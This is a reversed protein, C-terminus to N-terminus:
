SLSLYRELDALGAPTGIEYFRQEVRLGALANELSLTRFVQALDSKENPAVLRAVADRELVSLGYDIYQFEHAPRLERRKDYLTVMQSAEDFIVNSTAWRGENKFVTMLAARRAREFARGVEGFDVMLYSDGYTLLFRDALVGADLALRLAGATGRLEAGERVYRVPVGFREGSGVHSEILEGLHGISLVVESVGHTALWRLQHDVFPEGLVPIMAKPVTQTVPHMRTGLGGALVVCQM